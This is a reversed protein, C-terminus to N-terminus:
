GTVTSSSLAGATTPDAGLSAFATTAARRELEADEGAGTTRYADALLLRASATEYPLQVEQWLKCARRLTSVAGAGSGEALEVAGRAQAASARLATSGYAAAIADLETAAGRALDLEDTALAIQVRAPWLKARDLSAEARDEEAGDIPM